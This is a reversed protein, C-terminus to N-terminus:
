VVLYAYSGNEASSEAEQGKEEQFELGQRVNTNKDQLDKLVDKVTDEDTDHSRHAV